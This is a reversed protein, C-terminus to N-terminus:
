VSCWHRGRGAARVMAWGQPFNSGCATWRPKSAARGMGEIDALLPPRSPRRPGRVHFEPTMYVPPCRRRAEALSLGTHNLWDLLWCAAFMRRRRGGVAPFLLARQNGRRVHAPKWCGDRLRPMIARDPWRNPAWAARRHRGGAAFFGLRLRVPQGALAEGFSHLFVCALEDASLIMGEGDVAALCDGDGDLAIGLNAGEHEVAAGVRAAARAPLLRPRCRGLRCRARRPHGLFDLLALDGAFVPPGARCLATCRISCWAITPGWRSWGPKSCGAWMTSRFTSIGGRDRANALRASGDAPVARELQEVDTPQPSRRGIMWKLGNFAAPRHSATVM